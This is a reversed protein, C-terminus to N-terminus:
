RCRRRSMQVLCPMRNIKSSTMVPKPRKPLAVALSNKPTVGSRMVMALAMLVREVPVYSDGAKDALKLAEDLVRGIAPDMFVQGADGTVKPLRGVALDVAEAVRLPAGGARKILNASLGEPDDLLAKLLHEPVLRQHNERQAITQAAQLFGRSRETFKEINMPREKMNLVRGDPAGSVAACGLVPRLDSIPPARRPKLVGPM